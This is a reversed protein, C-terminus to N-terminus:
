LAPGSPEGARRARRAEHSKLALDTMHARELLRARRATEVVDLTGDPNALREFRERAAGRAARTSEEGTRAVHSLYAARRALLSKQAATPRTRPV